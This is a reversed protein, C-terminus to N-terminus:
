LDQHLTTLNLKKVLHSYNRVIMEMEGRDLWIGFCKQCIDIEVHGPYEQEGIFATILNGQCRPCELDKMRYKSAMEKISLRLDEFKPWKELTGRNLGYMQDTKNALNPNHTVMIITTRNRLERLLKFVDEGWDEDLSGTPEDALLLKPETTLARAIATRQKQGGSLLNPKQNLIKNVEIEDRTFVLRAMEIAKKHADSKNVGMILLPISINELVSLEPMLHHFQFVFGICRNRYYPHEHKKLNTLPTGDLIIDGSDPLDLLGLLNMLTSKGSGSQGVISIFQNKEIHLNIDKLVTLRPSDKRPGPFTKNLNDVTIM